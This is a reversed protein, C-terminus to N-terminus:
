YSAGEFLITFIINLAGLTVFTAPPVNNTSQGLSIQGGSPITNFRYKTNMATSWISNINNRHIYQKQTATLKTNPHIMVNPSNIIVSNTPNAPSSMEPDNFFYLTPLVTAVLQNDSTVAPLYEFAVAELTWYQTVNTITTFATNANLFTSYALFRTDAANSFSITSTANDYYIPYNSSCTRRYAM